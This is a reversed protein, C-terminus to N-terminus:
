LTGMEKESVSSTSAYIIAFPGLLFSVIVVFDIKGTVNSRLEYEAQTGKTEELYKKFTIIKPLVGELGIAFSSLISPKRHVTPPLNVIKQTDKYDKELFEYEFLSKKYNKYNMLLSPPILILCLLFVVLFKPSILQDLVEKKFISLFM